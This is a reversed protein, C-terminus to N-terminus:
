DASVVRWGRAQARARKGASSSIFIPDDALDLLPADAFSDSVFRLSANELSISEQAAWKRVRVLKTEGYCNGGPMYRGDWQSGIVTDIQLLDAFPKAYFEFAATAVVIRASSKRDDDLLALTAPLFGDDQARRKSFRRGARELEAIDTRGFM